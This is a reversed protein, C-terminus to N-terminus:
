SGESPRPSLSAWRYVTPMHPQFSSFSGRGLTPRGRVGRQGLSARGLTCPGEPKRQPFGPWLHRELLHWLLDPCGDRVESPRGAVAVEVGCASGPGRSECGLYLCWSEWPGLAMGHPLAPTAM